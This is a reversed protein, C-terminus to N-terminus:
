VDRGLVERYNRTAGDITAATVIVVADGIAQRNSGSADRKYAGTTGIQTMAGSALLDTGDTRKVVQLVPSTIGTTIPAGNKYWQVTYEDTASVSDVRYDIRATYVDDDVDLLAWKFNRGTGATQKLTAKIDINAPVVESYKNLEIQVDAWSGFYALQYADGSLVKTYLRLELVDSVVMNAADVVLKYKRNSTDTALTHETGIAAAQTGSSIVTPM